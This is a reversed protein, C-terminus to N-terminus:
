TAPHSSRITLQQQRYGAECLAWLGTRWEGPEQKQPPPPDSSSSSRPGQGSHEQVLHTHTRACVDLDGLHPILLGLSLPVPHAWLDLQQGLSGPSNIAYNVAPVPNWGRGGLMTNKANGKLVISGEDGHKSVSCVNVSCRSLM